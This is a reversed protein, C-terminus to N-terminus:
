ANLSEYLTFDNPITDRVFQILALTYYSAYPRKSVTAGLHTTLEFHPVGCQFMLQTLEQKLRDFCLFVDSSQTHLYQTEKGPLTARVFEHFGQRHWGTMHHYCTVLRDLPNRVVSFTIAGSLWYGPLQNAMSHHSGVSESGPIEMLARHISRSASYPEALFFFNHHHNYVAVSCRLRTVPQVKASTKVECGSM